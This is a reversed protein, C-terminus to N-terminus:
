KEEEFDFPPYFIGRETVIATILEAPTVDFAPNLCEVSDPAIPKEFYMKKIEDGDRMEIEIDDGTKCDTDITSFPCFVYLPVGYHKALVALGSTGIKNATDGNAAVRDCGVFVANVLGKSMVYSAMNDCILTTEIGANSLEYSTLRAGQLLPRTEDVYAHFRYGKEAGLLLTGLGTGYRSTALAGANCHTLVSDGDRMLTLGFESMVRCTEIDEGHISEAEAKLISILEERPRTRNGEAKRMMRSVAWSLNVATPRAGAIKGAALSLENFFEESNDTTIRRACIYIGYAACIGICPAGRVRLKKIAECIEEANRLRITKSRNPLLTQDIAEIATGDATLRVPDNKEYKM